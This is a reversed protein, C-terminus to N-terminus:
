ADLVISYSHVYLVFFCVFEKSNQPTKVDHITKCAGSKQQLEVLFKFKWKAGVKRIVVFGFLLM